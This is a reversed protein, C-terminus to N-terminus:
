RDLKLCRITILAVLSKVGKKVSCEIVALGAEEERIAMGIQGAGSTM